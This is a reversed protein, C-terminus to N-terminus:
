VTCPSPVTTPTPASSRRNRTTLELRIVMAFIGGVLFFLLVSALYMVAIRKHDLTLLWSLVGRDANLYNIKKYEPEDVPAPQQDIVAPQSM